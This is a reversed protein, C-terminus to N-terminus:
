LSLVVWLLPVAVSAVTALGFGWILWAFVRDITGDLPHFFEDRFWQPMKRLWRPDDRRLLVMLDPENL